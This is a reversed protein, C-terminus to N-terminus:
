FDVPGLVQRIRDKPIRIVVAATGDGRWRTSVVEASHVLTQFRDRLGQSGELRDHVRGGAKAPLSELYSATRDWANILAADRSLSREQTGSVLAGAARGSGGVFLYEPEPAFDEAPTSWASGTTSAACACGLAFAAATSILLPRGIRFPNHDM